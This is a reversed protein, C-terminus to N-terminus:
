RRKHKNIANLIRKTLDKETKVGSVDIDKEIEERAMLKKLQEAYQPYGFGNKM